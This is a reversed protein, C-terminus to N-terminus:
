SAPRQSACSQRGDTHRNVRIKCIMVRVAKAPQIQEGDYHFTIRVARLGALEGVLGRVTNEVNSVAINTLQMQTGEPFTGADAKVSVSVGNVSGSFEKAPMAVPKPEETEEEPEAAAFVASASIDATVVTEATVAEGDAEWRVFEFGEEAEPATPMNEEGIAKGEEVTVTKVTEEGNM